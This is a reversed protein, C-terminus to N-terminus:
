DRQSLKIVALISVPLAVGALISLFRLFWLDDHISGCRPQIECALDYADQIRNGVRTREVPDCGRACTAGCWPIKKRWEM